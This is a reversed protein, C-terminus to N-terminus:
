KEEENYQTLEYLREKCDSRHETWSVRCRSRSSGEPLSLRLTEGKRPVPITGGLARIIMETQSKTYLCTWPRM